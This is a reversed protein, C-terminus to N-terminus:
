KHTGAKHIWIWILKTHTNKEPQSNLEQYQQWENTKKRRKSKRYVSCVSFMFWVENRKM